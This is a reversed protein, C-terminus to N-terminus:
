VELSSVLGSRNDVTQCVNQWINLLDRCLDTFRAAEYFFAAEAGALVPNLNRAAGPITM